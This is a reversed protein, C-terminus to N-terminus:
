LSGHNVAEFYKHATNQLVLFLKVKLRGVPIMCMPQIDIANKKLM